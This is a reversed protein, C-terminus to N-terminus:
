EVGASALRQGQAKAPAAVRPLRVRFTAGAGTRSEATITGGHAEVIQRAIALGLGAGARRASGVQYYKDFIRPLDAEPIGVGSDSVEFEVGDEVGRAVVRIWGGEPTFKFANSLLNGLVENRIREGDVRLRQPAGPEVRTTFTIRKSHALADFARQLARLLGELDVDDIQLDVAGAEMRSSELLQNVLRTLLRTQELILQLAERQEKTPEGFLGDEMLSAYGSIVNLPTRLEHSAVSVFEAKLRDLEALKQAMSRFSRALDGIEDRRGYPLDEPAELTGHNAVAAMAARLRRLPGTLAGITWLGLALALVVAVATAAALTRGAAASIREAEAVDADSRRDIAAAITDPAALTRRLVPRVEEIFYTSAEEGQGSEILEEIRQTALELSDLRAAVRAAQARYGASALEGLEQRASLLAEYMGERLDPLMTAVYSGQHREFQALAVSLRRLAILARAHQGRLDIAIDRLAGLRSVGYLAPALLLLTTALLTALLRGRATM